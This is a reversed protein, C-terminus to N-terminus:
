RGLLSLVEEVPLGIVNSLLGDIGAVIMEGHEQIGYAGAKDLPNVLAFYADIDADNLPRFRVTTRALWCHEICDRVLCVGSLVEHRRGAFARLMARAAPLDAPKGFVQGAFVIITDAGLVLRGPMTAAVARAKAGALRQVLAEPSEGALPAEPVEATRVQLPVGARALLERRRPSASALVLM